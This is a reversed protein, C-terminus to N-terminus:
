KGDGGQHIEFGQLINHVCKEKPQFVLRMDTGTGRGQSDPELSIDGYCMATCMHVCRMFLM